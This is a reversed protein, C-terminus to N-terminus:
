LKKNVWVCINYNGLIFKAGFYTGIICSPVFAWLLINKFFINFKNQMNRNIISRGSGSGSGSGRGSGSGSGSGSGNNKKIKKFIEQEGVNFSNIANELKSIKKILTDNNVKIEKVFKITNDLVLEIQKIKNEFEHNTTDHILKENRANLEFASLKNQIHSFTELIVDFDTIKNDHGVGHTVDHVKYQNEGDYNSCNSEIKELTNACLKDKNNTELLIADQISPIFFLYEFESDIENEDGKISEKITELEDILISSSMYEKQKTFLWKINELYNAM